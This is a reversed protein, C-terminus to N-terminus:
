ELKKMESQIRSESIAGRTPGFANIGMFVVGLAIAAIPWGPWFYGMGSFSWIVIFFASLLIWSLLLYWFGQKAKLSSIARQRLDDSDSM